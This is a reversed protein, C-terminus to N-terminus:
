TQMSAILAASSRGGLVGLNAFVVAVWARVGRGTRHGEPPLPRRRAGPAAEASCHKEFVDWGGLLELGKTPRRSIRPDSGVRVAFDALAGYERRPVTSELQSLILVDPFRLLPHRPPTHPPCVQVSLVDATGPMLVPMGLEQRPVARLATMSHPLFCMCCLLQTPWGSSWGGAMEELPHSLCGVQALKRCFRFPEDVALDYRVVPAHTVSQPSWQPPRM